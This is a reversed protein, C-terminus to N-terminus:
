SSQRLGDLFLHVIFVATEQPEPEALQYYTPMILSFSLIMGLLATAAQQPDVPQLKGADMQSQLFTAVRFLSREHFPRSAALMEQWEASNAFSLRVMDQNQVIFQIMAQVLQTLDTALDGSTQVLDPLQPQFTEMFTKLLTPKDGFHRYITAVGVNAESAIQEMTPAALGYQGFLTRAAQLIRSRVDPQTLDALGHEKALLQLLEQKSGIQRYITARSLGTQKALTDMTFSVARNQLLEQAAQVIQAKIESDNQSPM